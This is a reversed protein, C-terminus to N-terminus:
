DKQKICGNKIEKLNKEPNYDLERLQCFYGLLYEGTLKSNGKLGEPNLAVISKIKNEVWNGKIRSSYASNFSEYLYRWTDFPKSSFRKMLRQAKTQRISKSEEEDQTKTQSEGVRKRLVSYEGKHIVALLRGYLYNRDKNEYDLCMKYDEEKYKNNGKYISCAISLVTKRQEYNLAVPNSAKRIFKEEIYKPINKKEVISQVLEKIIRKKIRDENKGISYTDKRYFYMKAITDISPAGFFCRYKQNKNEGLIYQKWAYKKHWNEINDLFESGIIERYYIVAKRGPSAGDIGIIVSRDDPKLKEKYGRIKNALKAGFIQGVDSSIENDGIQGVDSSIENNGILEDSSIGIKPLDTASINWAVFKQEKNYYAQNREKLMLWRLTNHAKQTVEYSIGVVEEKTSFRGNFVFNKKDESSILKATADAFPHKTTLFTDSKGLVYCLGSSGNKEKEVKYRFNQWSKIIEDDEWTKWAKGNKDKGVVVVWRIFADKQGQQSNISKFIPCEDKEKKDKPEILTKGEGKLIKKQILDEILKDSQIYKNVIAIKINNKNNKDFDAWKQLQKQYPKKEKLYTKINVALAWRCDNDDITPIVTYKEKENTIVEAKIMESNEDLQIEININKHTHAVPAFEYGATKSAERCNEYTEYLRQFWSM